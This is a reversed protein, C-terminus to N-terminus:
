KKKNDYKKQESMAIALAQDRSKVSEGSSSKLKKKRFEEMVKKIKNM